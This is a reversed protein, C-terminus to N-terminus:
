FPTVQTVEERKFVSLVDHSTRNCLIIKKKESFFKPFNKKSGRILNKISEMSSTQLALLCIEEQFQPAKFLFVKDTVDSEWKMSSLAGDFLYDLSYFLSQDEKMSKETFWFILGVEPGVVKQLSDLVHM